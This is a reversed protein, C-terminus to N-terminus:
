NKLLKLESEIMEKVLKNISIKPKWKLEKRAKNSNGLLSNVELPRYYIKSTQIICKGNEDYCKSDLGNGKWFYKIDLEKLVLNIFDKVSYNKGTSIVYDPPPPSSSCSM